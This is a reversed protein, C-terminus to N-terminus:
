NLIFKSITRDDSASLLLKSEPIYLLANVSNVHGGSQVDISQHLKLTDGDWIRIRKDRSASILLKQESVYVLDNVTFWHASIRNDLEGSLGYKGILADRGGTYINKDSLAIAFVSPTHAETIYIRSQMRELNVLHIHSDGAGVLINYDSLPFIRRLSGTTLQISELPFFTNPDWKVLVGDGGASYVFNNLMIISFIGKKHLSVRRLVTNGKLDIWYIDGLMDGAVLLNGPLLAMSFIKGDVQAIVKGDTNQSFLDWRVIYGDGACSLFYRDDYLALQYIGSKHGQYKEQIQFKEKPMYLYLYGAM